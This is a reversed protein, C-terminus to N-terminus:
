KGAGKGTAKAKAEELMIRVQPANPNTPDAALYRSWAEVAKDPRNMNQAYVIGLNYLSQIHKPNLQNAKEFNQVARDYWQIRQYMVGQDTLIDPNSPDLELAKQYATIAKQPQDTDFYDNGLMIWARLNKPEQAVLKEAEAIRKTYDVPAGGGASVGGGTMVPQKKSLSFVLYGGILGVLLAIVVTVITERNM